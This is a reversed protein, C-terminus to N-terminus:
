EKGQHVRHLFSIIRHYDLLNTLYPLCYVFYKRWRVTPLAITFSHIELAHRSVSSPCVTCRGVPSWPRWLVAAGATLAHRSPSALVDVCVIGTNINMTVGCRLNRSQATQPCPNKTRSSISVCSTLTLRASGLRTSDFALM